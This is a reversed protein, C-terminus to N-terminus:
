SGDIGNVQVHILNKKKKEGGAARLPQESWLLSRYGRPFSYIQPLFIGIKEHIYTM